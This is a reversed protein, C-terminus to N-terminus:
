GVRRPVELRLNTPDLGPRQVILVEAPTQEPVSRDRPGPTQFARRPHRVSRSGAAPEPELARGTAAARRARPTAREVTPRALGDEAPALPRAAVRGISGISGVARGDRPKGNTLRLLTGARREHTLPVQDVRHKEVPELEVEAHVHQDQAERSEGREDRLVPERPQARLLVLAGTTLAAATARGGRTRVRAPEEGVVRHVLLRLPELPGVERVLARLTRQLRHHPAHPFARPPLDLREHLGRHAGDRVREVVGRPRHADIRPHTEVEEPEVDHEVRVLVRM